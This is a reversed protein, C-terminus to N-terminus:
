KRTLRTKSLAKSVTNLLVYFDEENNVTIEQVDGVSNGGRKVLSVFFTKSM